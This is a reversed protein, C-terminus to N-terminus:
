PYQVMLYGRRNPKLLQLRFITDLQLAPLIAINPPIYKNREQIINWPTKHGKYSNTRAVNFWIVYANAKDIFNQTSRFEEVELFEDEIIRHV